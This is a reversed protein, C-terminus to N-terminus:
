GEEGSVLSKIALMADETGGVFQDKPKGAKALKGYCKYLSMMAAEFYESFMPHIEAVEEAISTSIKDVEGKYVIKDCELSYYHMDRENDFFKIGYKWITFIQDTTKKETM